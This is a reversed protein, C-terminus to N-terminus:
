SPRHSCSLNREITGIVSQNRLEREASKILAGRGVAAEFETLDQTLSQALLELELKRAEVTAVEVELLQINDVHLQRQQRTEMELLRFREQEAGVATDIM